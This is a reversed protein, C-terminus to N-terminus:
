QVKEDYNKGAFTLKTTEVNLFMWMTVLYSAVNTAFSHLM